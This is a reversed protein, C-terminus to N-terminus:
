VFIEHMPLSIYCLFTFLELQGLNQKDHLLEGFLSSSPSPLFLVIRDVNFNKHKRERVAIHVHYIRLSTARAPAEIGDVSLSLSSNKVSLLLTISMPGLLLSMMIGRRGAGEEEMEKGAKEVEASGGKRQRKRMHLLSVDAGREWLRRCGRRGLPEEIGIEEKVQWAVTGVM